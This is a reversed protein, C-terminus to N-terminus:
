VLQQKKLPCRTAKHRSLSQRHKFSRRCLNCSFTCTTNHSLMHQKLLEVSGCEKFCVTCTNHAPQKPCAHRVLARNSTYSKKCLKCQFPKIKLHVNQHSVFDNRSMFSKRCVQCTYKPGGFSKHRHRQHSALTRLHKYSKGCEPCLHCQQKRPTSTRQGSPAPSVGSAGSSPGAQTECPVTEESVDLFSDLTIASLEM